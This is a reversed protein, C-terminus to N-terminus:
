PELTQNEEIVPTPVVVTRKRQAASTWLSLVVCLIMFITALYSTVKKLVAATSAGFLSEGSDGGFSEGLGMSKSEQVLIVMCLLVTTLIFVILSFGFLIGM